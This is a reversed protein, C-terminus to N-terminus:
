IDQHIDRQSGEPIRPANSPNGLRWRTPWLALMWHSLSITDKSGASKLLNKLMKSQKVVAKRLKRCKVDLGKQKIIRLVAAIHALYEKTNGRSFILMNLHSDDPLRVKWSQPEEKSLVIDTEAVYLIPPRKSLQGKKCKSNKLGKPAKLTTSM